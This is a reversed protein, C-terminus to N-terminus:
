IGYHLVGRLAAKAGDCHQEFSASIKSVYGNQDQEVQRVNLIGTVTNCGVGNGHFDLKAHTADAFRSVAYRGPHFRQGTPPGIDMLWNSHQGRITFDAEYSYATLGILSTDNNYRQHLGHALPDGLDSALSLGLPPTRYRIVGSLPPASASGCRQTFSADISVVNGSGDFGIQRLGVEGWLQGCSRGDGYVNLGPARGTAPPVEAFAYRQSHLTEGVPAAIDITWTDWFEVGQVTIFVETRNGSIKFTATRPTYGRTQGQGVWEGHASSFGFVTDPTDSVAPPPPGAIACPALLLAAATLLHRM